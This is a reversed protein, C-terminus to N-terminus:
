PGWQAPPWQAGYSLLEHPMRGEIVSVICYVTMTAAIAVLLVQYITWFLLQREKWRVDISPRPLRKDQRHHLWWFSMAQNCVSAQALIDAKICAYGRTGFKRISPKWDTMGGLISRNGATGGNPPYM